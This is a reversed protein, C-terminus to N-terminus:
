LRWLKKRDKDLVPTKYKRGMQLVNLHKHSNESNIIKSADSFYTSSIGLEVNYMLEEDQYVGILISQNLHCKVLYDRYICNRMKLSYVFVQESHHPIEFRLDDVKYGNLKKLFPFKREQDLVINLKSLTKEHLVQIEVDLESLSYIKKVDLYNINIKNVYQCLNNVVDSNAYAEVIFNIQKDFKFISLIKQFNHMDIETLNFQHSDDIRNLIKYVHNIDMNRCLILLYVLSMNFGKSKIKEMFIKTIKKTTKGITKNLFDELNHSDLLTQIKIFTKEEYNININEIILDKLFNSGLGNLVMEKIRSDKKYLKLLYGRDAASTYDSLPSSFNSESNLIYNIWSYHPHPCFYLENIIKFRLNRSPNQSIFISFDVRLEDVSCDQLVNKCLFLDLNESFANSNFGIEKLKYLLSKVDKVQPLIQFVMKKIQNSHSLSGTYLSDEALKFKIAILFDILKFVITDDIKYVNLYSYIIDPLLDSKDEDSLFINEFYYENNYFHKIVFPNDSVIDSNFISFYKKLLKVRMFDYQPEKILFVLHDIDREEVQKKNLRM